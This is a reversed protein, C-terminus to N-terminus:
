STGRTVKPESIPIILDKVFYTKFNQRYLIDLILFSGIRWFELLSIVLELRSMPQQSGPLHLPLHMLDFKM